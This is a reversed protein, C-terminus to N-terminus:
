DEVSKALFRYCNDIGHGKQCLICRKQEVKPGIAPKSNDVVQNRAHRIRNIDTVDSLLTTTDNM